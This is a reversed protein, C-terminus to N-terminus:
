LVSLVCERENRSAENPHRPPTAVRYLRGAFLREFQNIYVRDRCRITETEMETRRPVSDAPEERAVVKALRRRLYANTARYISGKWADRM